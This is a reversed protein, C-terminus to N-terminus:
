HSVVRCSESMEYVGIEAEWNGPVRKKRGPGRTHPRAAPPAERCRGCGEAPASLGGGQNKLIGEDQMQLTSDRSRATLTTPVGSSEFSQGAEEHAKLAGSKPAVSQQTAGIGGRKPKSREGKAAIRTHGAPDFLFM